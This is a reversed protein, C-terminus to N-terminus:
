VRVAVDDEHQAAVKELDAPYADVGDDHKEFSRGASLDASRHEPGFFMVIMVFGFVCGMLIAMVKGYDYRKVASKSNQELPFQTGITAEITSSASSALNGLQYAVGVIFVRFAPPSLESLYIPIVGWAGQVMFQLFFVAAMIGDNRIFAWPYILAGGLLCATIVSLRRGVFDSMYGIFVGGTIAGLNAVVMTVTSKNPSFELQVRLMTPYLDQSGHSMFNFGAMLIVMYIMVHWYKKLSWKAMQLFATSPSIRELHRQALYADTEPLMLRLAIILVPPCAGFWFLARWGHPSNYTIARNFVVALLYGLAYGQQLIGSIIGRAEVPCDELATAACNGYIGGMAIGFLSRVALFQRYTQVFGTGLELAIFVLCNVIFPWKRGFKDAAIGFVIAGVSRLMLVLTIGWTIETVTRGLSTAIDSVTLSVTFFDFADWTWGALAVLVFMWQRRNLQKLIPIPNELHVGPPPRLSSVRTSLHKRLRHSWTSSATLSTISPAM